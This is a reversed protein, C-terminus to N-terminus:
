GLQHSLVQFASIERQVAPRPLDRVESGCELCTRYTPGHIKGCDQCTRPWLLSQQIAPPQLGYMSLVSNNAAQGSLHIYSAPMGSGQVWGFYVSMRSETMAGSMESARSHRMLHHYARKEVGAAKACTLFNKRLGGYGLAEGYQNLWVPASGTRDPHQDLWEELYSGSWVIRPARPGTKGDVYLIAGLQDFAVHKIQLSGIEGIRAGTEYLVSVLARNMETPAATIMNIIDEETLLEEPLMESHPRETRIWDTLTSQGLWAYFKKLVLKYDRKTWDSYESTRLWKLFTTIDDKSAEQFPTNLHERIKKLTYLYKVVRHVSLGKELMLHDEFQIILKKDSEPIKSKKLNQEASKLKQEINYIDIRM